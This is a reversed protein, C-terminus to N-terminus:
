RQIFRQVEGAGEESEKHPLPLFYPRFFTRTILHDLCYSLAGTSDSWGEGPGLENFLSVSRERVPPRNGHGLRRHHIM